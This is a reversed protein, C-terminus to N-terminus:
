GKKMKDGQIKMKWKKSFIHEKSIWIFIDLFNTKDMKINKPFIYEKSIWIFIDLFNTKDMKIYRTYSFKKCKCVTPM